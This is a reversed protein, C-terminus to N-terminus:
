VWRRVVLGIIVLGAAVIAAELAAVAASAPAFRGEEIAHLNRRYHWGAWAGMATGLALFIVGVALFESGTGTARGGVPPANALERLFIGMRATVFGLGIVGLATRAWALFTRENALHERVKESM